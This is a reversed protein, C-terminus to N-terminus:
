GGAHRGRRARGVLQPVGRGRTSRDRFPQERGAEGSAIGTSRLPDGGTSPLRKTSAALPRIGWGDTVTGAIIAARIKVLFGRHYKYDFEKRRHLQGVVVGPHVNIRRAFREIEMRSYLPATRAIFGAMEAHPVLWDQATENADIENKPLQEAELDRDIVPATKGEGRSVHVLEHMLTFWFWDIRDYRLSLAVVPSHDDLWTTVGDVKAKSTTEVVVLRVGYKALIRTARKTEAAAFLLAGIEGLLNKMSGARYRGDVPVLPALQRARCIWARLAPSSTAYPASKRAVHPMAPEEDINAIGLFDCVRKELVDINSSGEIWGRKIAEAVPIKSYLKARRTM